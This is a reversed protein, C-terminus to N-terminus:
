ESQFPAEFHHPALFCHRLKGDARFLLCVDVASRRPARVGALRHLVSGAAQSTKGSEVARHDVRAGREAALEGRAALRHSLLRHDSWIRDGSDGRTYIVM